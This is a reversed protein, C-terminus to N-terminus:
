KNIKQGCWVAYLIKTGRGPISGLGKATFAGLGLQQVVLSNGSSKNKNQKIKNTVWDHRVRQSGMSQLTGPMGTRWWRRSSAWVWTWQTLSEMWGDWGRHDRERGAETKGLMLTKELSDARSMQHGSYQLKLMLGELSCGPSIEKLISQNSRRATWPVRLLRRWVVTWFCWNKPAWGEKHDLEAWRSNPLSGLHDAGRYTEQKIVTRASSPFGEQTHSKHLSVLWWNELRVWHDRASTTRCQQRRKGGLILVLNHIQPSTWRCCILWVSTSGPNGKSWKM